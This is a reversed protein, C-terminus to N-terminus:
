KKPKLIQIDEMPAPQPANLGSFYNEILSISFRLEFIFTGKAGFFHEIDEAHNYAIRVFPFEVGAGWLTGKETKFLTADLSIFRSPDPFFKLSAESRETHRLYKSLVLYLNQKYLNQEWSFRLSDKSESNFYSIDFNPLYTQLGNKKGGFIFKSEFNLLFRLHRLESKYFSGQLAFANWTAHAWTYLSDSENPYIKSSREINQFQIGAAFGLSHKSHMLSLGTTQISKVLSFDKYAPFLIFDEHDWGHREGWWFAGLQVEKNKDLFPSSYYFALRDRFAFGHHTGYVSNLPIQTSFPTYYSGIAFYATTKPQFVKAFERLQQDRSYSSAKQIDLPSISFVATTVLLLFYLCFRM